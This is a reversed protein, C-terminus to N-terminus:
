RLLRLMPVVTDRRLVGRRLLQHGLQQIRSRVVMVMVAVAEQAIGTRRSCLVGGLLGTASLRALTTRNFFAEPLVAVFGDGIGELAHTVIEAADRAM